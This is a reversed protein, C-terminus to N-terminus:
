GTIFSADSSTKRFQNELYKPQFIFYGIMANLGFVAAILFLTLIPNKLLQIAKRPFELLFILFLKIVQSFINQYNNFNLGKLKPMQETGAVIMGPMRKPFLAIPFTFILLLTGLILFGIWWAGVYRPDSQNIDV